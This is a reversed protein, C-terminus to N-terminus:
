RCLRGGHYVGLYRQGSGDRGTRRDPSKERRGTDRVRGNSECGTCGNGGQMGYILARAIRYDLAFGCLRKELDAAM